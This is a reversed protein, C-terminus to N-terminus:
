LTGSGNHRLLDELTPVIRKVCARGEEIAERARDFELLGIGSLRPTLLLEPPDGAMRSRVILDQMINISSALVDFMGPAKVSPGFLQAVLTNARHKVEESIKELLSAEVSEGEIENEPRGPKRIYRGVAGGNLNVAIVFDAGLARCISVPVPNVLGGDVLWRDKIQVPTFIGPLAISARIADLLPGNRIWVERGTALDTATAAFPKSLNEIQVDGTWEHFFNMLRKGEVFGGGPILKIDLYRIIEKRVLQLLWQELADLQGSVYIGGVLAGISTGCVVDPEIGLAHLERIVGIHAWGRASGGGLALGIVSNHKNSNAM